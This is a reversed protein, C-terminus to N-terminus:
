RLHFTRSGGVTRGRGEGSVELFVALLGDDAAGVALLGDDAAGAFDSGDVM